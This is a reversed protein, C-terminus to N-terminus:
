VTLWKRMMHMLANAAGFKLRIVLVLLLRMRKYSLMSVFPAQCWSEAKNILNLNQPVVLTFGNSLVRMQKILHYHNYHKQFNSGVKPLIYLSATDLGKSLVCHDGLQERIKAPIILRGKADITHNYEGMFM